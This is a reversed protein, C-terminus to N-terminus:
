SMIDGAQAAQIPVGFGADSRHRPAVVRVPCIWLPWIDVDAQATRAALACAAEKSPM